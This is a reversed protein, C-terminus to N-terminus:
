DSKSWIFSEEDNFADGNVLPSLFACHVVALEVNADDSLGKIANCLNAMDVDRGVFAEWWPRPLEPLPIECDRAAMHIAACAIAEAAYRICLDLRCSDNCYSWAIQHFEKDNVELRRVFYLIFKHPHSDPIWYLTFGLQRLMYQEMNTIAKYWEKFVPGLPSMLQVQRIRSEKEDLSLQSALPSAQVSPHKVIDHCDRICVLRRKRYIHAFILIIQRIQRPEEEMKSALLISAMAVSWIDRQRLSAQHYFRHLITCSTAYVSPGLQLLRCSALLLSTGHLRHFRECSASIGDRRSATYDPDQILAVISRDVKSLPKNTNGNNLEDDSKMINCISIPELAFSKRHM